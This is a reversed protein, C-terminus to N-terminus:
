TRKGDGVRFKLDATRNHKRAWEIRPKWLLEDTLDCMIRAILRHKM